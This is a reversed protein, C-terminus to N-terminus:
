PAVLIEPGQRVIKVPSPAEHLYVRFRAQLNHFLMLSTPIM